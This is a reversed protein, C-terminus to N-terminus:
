HQCRSCYVTARQQIRISSLPNGCHFCPLDARGYVALSQKFYGPKGDASFFDKLTTGGQRIASELVNKIALTLKVTEPQHLTGASRQPQIGAHFLAENAYINGVGVVVSSDMIANKIPVSRTRLKDILYTPNFAASLPEPGLQALLPHTAPESRTWLIAGFRRPDNFRLIQGSNLAIDVHDHKIPPSDVELLRLTGSMGLHLLLTGKPLGFLLYKGRRDLSQIVQGQIQKALDAPIPWRLRPERVCVRQIRQDVVRALLARRVTEVEPLEPM